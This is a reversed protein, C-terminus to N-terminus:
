AMSSVYTRPRSHQSMWNFWNSSREVLNSITSLSGCVRLIMSSYINWCPWFIKFSWFLVSWQINKLFFSLIYFHVKLNWYTSVIRETRNQWGFAALCTQWQCSSIDSTKNSALYNNLYGAHIVHTYVWVNHICETIIVKFEWYMRLARSYNTYLCAM